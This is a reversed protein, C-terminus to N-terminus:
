NLIGFKKLSVKLWLRELNAISRKKEWNNTNEILTLLTEERITENIKRTDGFEFTKNECLNLFHLIFTISYPTLTNIDSGQYFLYNLIQLLNPFNEIEKPLNIIDESKNSDLINQIAKKIEDIKNNFYEDQTNSEIKKVFDKLKRKEIGKM